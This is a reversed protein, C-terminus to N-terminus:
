GGKEEGVCILMSTLDYVAKVAWGVSCVGREVYYVALYQPTTHFMSRKEEVAGQQTTNTLSDLESGLGCPITTM